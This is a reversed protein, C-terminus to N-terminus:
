LLCTNVLPLAASVWTMTPSHPSIPRPMSLHGIAELRSWRSYLIYPQATLKWSFFHPSLPLACSYPKWSTLNKAEPPPKKRTRPWRSCHNTSPQGGRLASTTGTHISIQESHQCNILICHITSTTYATLELIDNDLYFDVSYELQQRTNAPIGYMITRHVTCKRMVWHILPHCFYTTWAQHMLGSCRVVLVYWFSKFSVRKTQCSVAIISQLM